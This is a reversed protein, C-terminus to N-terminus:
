KVTSWDPVPLDTPQTAAKSLGLMLQTVVQTKPDTRVAVFWQGGKYIGINGAGSDPAGWAAVVAEQTDGVRLGLSDGAEPRLLIMRTIGEAKSVLALLTGNRFTLSRVPAQPDESLPSPQVTGLLEAARSESDGLRVGSVDPGAGGRPFGAAHAPALNALPLVVALWLVSRRRICIGM